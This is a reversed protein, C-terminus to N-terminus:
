GDYVAPNVVTDPREGALVQRISTAAIELGRRQTRDSVGAVHPSLVLNPADLLPNDPDPPEEEFVDLAAGALDGEVLAEHLAGEDVVGGRGTNVLYGEGLRALADEDVLGRTEATLPTHVTVVDARKFLEARGVLDVGAARVTERDHRPFMPHSREGTVYPDYGVVDADFREAATRAVELGITGVGVVGLTKGGLETVPSRVDAWEGAAVRETTELLDRLLAFIMGFTHEVVSPAPGGPSNAVVVGAETAAALDIHDVGSGTLAIVQLDAAAEFVERSFRGPRLLCADCGAVAERLEETADVDLGGAPVSVTRVNFGAFIERVVDMPRGHSESYTVLLAPM